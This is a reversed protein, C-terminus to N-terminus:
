GKIFRVLQRMTFRWSARPLRRLLRLPISETWPFTCIAQGSELADAIRRAAAETSVMRRGRTSPHASDGQTMESVVFGPQVDVVTVGSGQLDIRLTELFAALAAKSAAYAGSTPYGGLSALSSIGCVVGRKRPLFLELAAHLSAFAGVVNIDLVAEISEWTLRSAHDAKGVGANAVVADLGGAAEDAGRIWERLAMRDRVDVVSAQARPQGQGPYKQELERVLDALREARRACLWLYAGRRALEHALAAGIGSSAGTILVRRLAAM